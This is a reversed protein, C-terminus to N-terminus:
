KILNKFFDLLRNSQPIKAGSDIPEKPKVVLIMREDPKKFGKKRLEKEINVPDAWYAIDKELLENEHEITAAKKELSVIRIRISRIEKIQFFVLPNRRLM